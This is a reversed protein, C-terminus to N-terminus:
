IEKLTLTLVAKDVYTLAIDWQTYVGLVCISNFYYNSGDELGCYVAPVANLAKRAAAATDVEQANLWTTVQLETESIRPVLVSNGFDDNSITSFNLMGDIAGYQVAGLNIATGICCAGISVNGSARLATVTILANSNAPLDFLVTNNQVFFANFFYTYANVVGSRTILSVTNDYITVGGATMQVRVTDAVINLLAIASVRVGPTIQAVISGSAYSSTGRQTDFMAYQNTPGIDIWWLPQTLPNKNTNAAQLSQYIRHKYTAYDNLGYTPISSWAAEVIGIQEWFLPSLMPDNGVNANTLSQYILNNESVMNGLSYSTGGAWAAATFPEAVTTSTLTIDNIAIPPIVKM